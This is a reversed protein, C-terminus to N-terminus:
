IYFFQPPPCLGGGCNKNKTQHYFRDRQKPFKHSHIM